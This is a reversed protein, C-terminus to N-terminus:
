VDARWPARVCIRIHLAQMARQILFTHLDAQGDRETLHSLRGLLEELVVVVLARMLSLRATIARWM